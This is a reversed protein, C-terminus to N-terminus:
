TDSPARDVTAPRAGPVFGTFRAYKHTRDVNRGAPFWMVSTVIVFVM